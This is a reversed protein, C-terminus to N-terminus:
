TDHAIRQNGSLTVKFAPANGFVSVDTRKLTGADSIVFEDTDAPEAGLATAGTISSVDFGGIYTKLTEVTTPRMTGADNILVGDGDAVATTGRSTGGDILNIEASPILKIIKKATEIELDNMLSFTMGKLLQKKASNNIKENSYGLIISGLSMHFDLYKNNDIDWSHSGKGKKFFYPTQGNVFPDFRDFIKTGPILNKYGKLFLKNKKLNIM